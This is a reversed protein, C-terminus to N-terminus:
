VLLVVLLASVTFYSEMRAPCDSYFHDNAIRKFQESTAKVFASAMRIGLRGGTRDSNSGGRASAFDWADYVKPGIQIWVVVSDFLFLHYSMVSFPEGTNEKWCRMDFPLYTFLGKQKGDKKTEVEGYM